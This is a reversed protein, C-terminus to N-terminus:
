ASRPAERRRQPRRERLCRTIVGFFEPATSLYYARNLPDGARPTSDRGAAGEAPRLGSPRRLQSDLYRLRGLLGDLVAADPERRSSSASRSRAFARFEDDTQPRRSVGILNFREPLSGEHALNYIAPLLKRRALDGQAGFIVLTTPAVPLRELGEVLPNVEPLQERRRRACAVPAAVGDRSRPHASSASRSRPGDQHDLDQRRRRRRDPLLHGEQAEQRAERAGQPHRQNAPSSKGVVKQGARLIATVSQGRAVGHRHRPAQAQASGAASLKGAKIKLGIAEVTAVARSAPSAPRAAAAPPAGGGPAPPGGVRARSRADSHCRALPRLPEPAAPRRTGRVRRLERGGPLLELLRRYDGPAANKIKVVLYKNSGANEVFAYDGWPQKIRAILQEDADHAAGIGITLDKKDAVELAFTDCTPAECPVSGSEGAVDALIVARSAFWSGTTSGTWSVKPTASDLKGSDPTAATASGALLAGGTIMMGCLLRSTELRM